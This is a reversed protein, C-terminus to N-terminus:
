GLKSRLAAVNDALEVALQALKEVTLGALATQSRAAFTVREGHRGLAVPEYSGHVMRGGFASLIGNLQWPVGDAPFELGTPLLLLVSDGVAAFSVRWPQGLSEVFLFTTGGGGDRVAWGTLRGVARVLGPVGGAPQLAPAAATPAAGFLGAIGGLLMEVAQGAQDAALDRSAQTFKRVPDDSGM